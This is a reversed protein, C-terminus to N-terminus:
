KIGNNMEAVMAQIEDFTRRAARYSKRRIQNNFKFGLSDLWFDNPNARPGSRLCEKLDCCACQDWRKARSLAGSRSKIKRKESASFFREWWLLNASKPHTTM